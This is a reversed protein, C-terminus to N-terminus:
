ETEALATEIPAVRVFSCLMRVEGVGEVGTV